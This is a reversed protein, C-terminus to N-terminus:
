PQKGILNARRRLDRLWEAIMNARVAPATRGFRQDMYAATRLDDRFWGNLAQESMGVRAMVAAVDTGAPLSARWAARREAIAEPSPEEPSVRSVERLVLLRNELAALVSQEGAGAEPLLKLERVQKLDSAMIATGYVRQLTRDLEVPAQLSGGGVMGMALFSAAVVANM